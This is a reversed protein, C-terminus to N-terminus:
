PRPVTTTEERWTVPADLLGGAIAESSERWALLVGLARNPQNHSSMPRLAGVLEEVFQGRDEDSLALIWPYPRALGIELSPTDLAATLVHGVLELFAVREDYDNKTLLLLDDGDHRVITVPDQEAERFVEDSHDSLDSSYRITTRLPRPTAAM